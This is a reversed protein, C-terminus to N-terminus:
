VRIESGDVIISHEYFTVEQRLRGYTSHYRLLNAHVSPATTVRRPVFESRVWGPSTAVLAEAFGLADPDDNLVRAEREDGVPGAVVETQVIEM